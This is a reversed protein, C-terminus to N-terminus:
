SGFGHILINVFMKSDLEHLISRLERFHKKLKPLCEDELFPIPAYQELNILLNNIQQITEQLSESIERFETLVKEKNPEKSM